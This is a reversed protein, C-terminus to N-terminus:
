QSLRVYNLILVFTTISSLILSYTSATINWHSSHRSKVYIVDNSVVYFYPSTFIEDKTLDLTIKNIDQNEKRIIVVENRNGNLTADGALSLAEFINLREKTYTYHGPLRVDGLVSVNKNVLKVIVTPQNLYEVLLNKMKDTVEGVTLGKVYINGLLPFYINGSDNVVYSLLSVTVDNAFSMQRNETQTGFFNYAVEDFSSVKIYLEDGNNVRIVQPFESKYTLIDKDISRTYETKSTSICGIMLFCIAATLSLCGLGKKLPYSLM